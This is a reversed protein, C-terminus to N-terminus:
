DGFLARALLAEDGHMVDFFKLEVRDDTWASKQARPTFVADKEPIWAELVRSSKSLKQLLAERESVGDKEHPGFGELFDRLEQRLVEFPPDEFGEPLNGGYVRKLFTQRVEPTLVELTRKGVSPPIGWRRHSAWPTGAVSIFREVANEKQCACFRAAAPVGYSWGVVRLRSLEATGCGPWLRPLSAESENGFAGAIWLLADVSSSAERRRVIRRLLADNAGWGSFFLTVRSEPSLPTGAFDIFSVKM